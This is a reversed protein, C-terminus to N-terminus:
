RAKGGAAIDTDDRPKIEGEREMVALCTRLKKRKQDDEHSYTIFTKLPKSM